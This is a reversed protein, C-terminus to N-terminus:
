LGKMMRTSMLCTEGNTFHIIRNKTDVEKINNKNRIFARHCRVFNSDLAGTLEKLTGPFEIQRDKAHLIVKHINSSTEFFLIDDYDVSIKRGGAELTYVKHTKNTQLTHREMANLLCERLKVKVEAPNDKLVFDMAEVRYQFTMYSLESHATIFIIFGRPDYLRIQQALKMGNMNSNLDIDLFYIGTNQSTRVKELLMYPDGTDLTLQMDLEEILVINQIINVVTQRQAANDECVFIDLM